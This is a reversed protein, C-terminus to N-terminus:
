GRQACSTENPLPASLRRSAASAACPRRSSLALKAVLRLAPPFSIPEDGQAVLLLRSRARGVLGLLILQEVRRLVAIAHEDGIHRVGDTQQRPEVILSRACLIQDLFSIVIRTQRRM